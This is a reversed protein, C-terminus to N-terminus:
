PGMPATASSSQRLIRRALQSHENELGRSGCFVLKLEKIEECDLKNKLGEQLM